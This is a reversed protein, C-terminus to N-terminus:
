VDRPQASKLTADQLSRKVIQSMRHRQSIPVLKERTFGVLRRDVVQSFCAKTNKSFYNSQVADFADSHLLTM